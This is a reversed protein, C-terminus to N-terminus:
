PLQALVATRAADILAQANRMRQKRNPVGAPVHALWWGAREIVDNAGALLERMRAARRAERDAARRAASARRTDAARWARAIAAPVPVGARAAIWAIAARVDFGQPDCSIAASCYADGHDAVRIKECGDTFDVTMYITGTQARYTECDLGMACCARAIARAQPGPWGASGGKARFKM